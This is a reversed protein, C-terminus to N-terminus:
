NSIRLEAKKESLSYRVSNAEASQRTLELDPAKFPYDEEFIFLADRRRVVYVTPNLQSTWGRMRNRAELTKRLHPRAADYAAKVEVKEQDSLQKWFKLDQGQSGVAILDGRYFPFTGTAWLAVTILFFATGLLAFLVM